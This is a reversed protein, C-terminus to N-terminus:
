LQEERATPVNKGNCHQPFISGTSRGNGSYYRWMGISASTAVPKNPSLIINVRNGAAATTRMNKPQRAVACACLSSRVYGVLGILSTTGKGGPPAVSATARTTLWSNDTRNFCGTTTSLRLPAPPLMPASCTAFDDGSPYVSSTPVIEVLAILSLKYRPKDKLARVSRLGTAEMALKGSTSTVERGSMLETSSRVRSACCAGFM